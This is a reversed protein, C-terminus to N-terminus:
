RVPLPKQLFSRFTDRAQTTYNEEVTALYLQRGLDLDQVAIKQVVGAKIANEAAWISVFGVGLDAAVATLVAQTSGLEMTIVLDKEQLGCASLMQRVAMQTGSGKERVVFDLGVLERCHLTAPIEKGAAAILVLEDEVFPLFEVGQQENRAGVVALDIKRGTLMDLVAETDAVTLAVQIGPYERRFAGIYKPLLYEGPITSAGVALRGRKLGRFEDMVEMAREYASLVSKSERYFEKGAETLEVKKDNRHILALGIDEELAKIQSSVAPQTMFMLEAAGTFSKLDSVMVFAKMQKITSM